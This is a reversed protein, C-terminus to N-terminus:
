NKKQKKEKKDEVLLGQSRQYDRVLKEQVEPLCPSYRSYEM